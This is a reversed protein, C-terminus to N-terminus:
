STTVRDSIGIGRQALRAQDDRGTGGTIGSVSCCGVGAGGSIGLGLLPVAITQRSDWSMEALLHRAAAIRVGIVREGEDLGYCVGLPQIRRM